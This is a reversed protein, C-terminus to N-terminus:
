RARRSMISDRLKARSPRSLEYYESARTDREPRSVRSPRRRLRWYVLTFTLLAAFAILAIIAVIWAVSLSQSTASGAASVITQQPTAVTVSPTSQVATATAPVVVTTLSM